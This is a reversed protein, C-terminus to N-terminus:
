QGSSVSEPTRRRPRSAPLTLGIAILWVLGSFRALPLLFSLVPVLLSLTSLEAIVAIVLGLWAIWRPVLRGLLAPVSLGAALLGFTSVHAVGGTLFALDHLARVTGPSSQIEPRSLLWAVLGCLGLFGSSLLGGAFAIQVGPVRFGVYTLRSTATATFIMLPISAGFLFFANVALATGSSAFYSLVDGAPAFPSPYTRGALVSTVILGALFLGTFVFGLVALPPGPQPRQGTITM